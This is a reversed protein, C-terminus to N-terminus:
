RKATILIMAILGFSIFVTLISTLFSNGGVSISNWLADNNAFMIVLFLFFLYVPAMFALSILDKLWTHFGIYPLSAANGFPLTLTVFALPSLIAAIMLGVTRTLFLMLISVFLFIMLINIGGA